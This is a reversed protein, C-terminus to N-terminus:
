ASVLHQSQQKTEPVHQGHRCELKALVWLAHLKLADMSYSENAAARHLQGHVRRSHCLTKGVAQKPGAEWASNSLLVMKAEQGALYEMSRMPRAGAAGKLTLGSNIVAM